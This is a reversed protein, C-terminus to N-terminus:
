AVDERRVNQGSARGRTILNATGDPILKAPESGNATHNISEYRRALGYDAFHMLECDTIGHFMWDCIPIRM